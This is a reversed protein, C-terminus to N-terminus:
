RIAYGLELFIARKKKDNMGSWENWCKIIKKLIRKAGNMRGNLLAYGNLNALYECRATKKLAECLFFDAIQETGHKM